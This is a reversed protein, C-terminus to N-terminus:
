AIFETYERFSQLRNSMSAHTEQIIPNFLLLRTQTFQKYTREQNSWVRIELSSEHGSGEQLVLMRLPQGAPIRILVPKPIHPFGAHFFQM